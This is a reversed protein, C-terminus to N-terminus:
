ERRGEFWDEGGPLQTLYEDIIDPLTGAPHEYTLALLQQATTVIQSKDIMQSLQSPKLKGNLVEVSAPRIAAALANELMLEWEDRKVYYSTKNDHLNLDQIQVISDSISAIWSNTLRQEVQNKILHIIMRVLFSKISRLTAKKSMWDLEDVIELADAYRGELISNRLDILEQTM